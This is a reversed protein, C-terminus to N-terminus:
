LLFSSFDSKKSHFTSMQSSSIRNQSQTRLLFFWTEQLSFDFNPIQFFSIRNQSSKESEQLLFGFFDSKKSHFTSIQSSFIRNQNQTRLLFFWTEQLSFDFSPNQSPFFDSKSKVKRIRPTFLQFFWIEQLSFDFNSFIFNSKSKVGPTSLQIQTRLLFFCIDQLSFDFNPSQSSFFDSKSKVKRNRLLLFLEFYWYHVGFLFFDSKKSHFTSIQSSSIRNQSQTRLLFFWTEQLSFDFNSFFFDSKSKVGLTSLQIQTRLLFFWIEQLSFLWIL